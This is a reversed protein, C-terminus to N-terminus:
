IQSRGVGAARRLVDIKKEMTNGLHQNLYANGPDRQLASVAEAIAADIIKLNSELVAVTVPDLTESRRALAEELEAITTQFTAINGVLRGLSQSDTSLGNEAIGVPQAARNGSLALWVTGGSLTMVLVAAAALQPLSFAFRRRSRVTAFAVAAVPVDTEIRQRIGAWLHEPPEGVPLASARAVVARLEALTARCTACDVLHAELAAEDRPDLDGDLYESLRDTFRDIM